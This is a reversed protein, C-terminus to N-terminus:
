KVVSAGVTGGSFILIAFFTMLWERDGVVNVDFSSYCQILM